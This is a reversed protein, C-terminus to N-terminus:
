RAYYPYPRYYYPDYYAPGYYGYGPGYAPGYYGPFGLGIGVSVRAEAPSTMVATTATAAGAMMLAVLAVKAFKRMVTRRQESRVGACWALRNQSPGASGCMFLPRIRY